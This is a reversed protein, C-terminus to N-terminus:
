EEVEYRWGRFSGSGFRMEGVAAMGLAFWLKLGRRSRPCRIEPGLRPRPAAPRPPALAVRASVRSLKAGGRPSPSSLLTIDGTEHAGQRSSPGLGLRRVQGRALSTRIYELFYKWLFLYNKCLSEIFLISFFLAHCKEKRYRHRYSPLVVNFISFQVDSFPPGNTEISGLM